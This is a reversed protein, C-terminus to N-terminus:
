LQICCLLGVQAGSFSTPRGGNQNEIIFYPVGSVRLNRTASTYKEMVSERYSDGELMSAAGNVDLDHVRGCVELLVERRSVNEGREFYAIFISEMLTDAKEPATENCWEVIRHCDLTPIVLRDDTFAIGVKTGADSLHKRKQLFGAAAQPGYKDKIYEMLPIGEHPTNINLFFPEWKVQDNITLSVPKCRYLRIVNVGFNSTPLRSCSKGFQAEGCFVM